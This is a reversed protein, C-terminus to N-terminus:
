AATRTARQRTEDSGLNKSLQDVTRALYRMAETLNQSLDNSVQRQIETNTSHLQQLNADLTKQLRLVSQTQEHIETLGSNKARKDEKTPTSEQEKIISSWTSQLEELKLLTTDVSKNQHETLRSLTHNIQKLIEGHSADLYQRATTNQKQLNQDLHEAHKQLGENFSSITSSSSEAHLKIAPTLVEKVAVCIQEAHNTQTDRWHSQAELITNQWLNVQQSLSEAVATQIGDLLNAVLKNPHSTNEEDPLNSSVIDGVRSDVMSLFHQESREIPFQIFIALVSLVLGVATTDFAVYLGSKLNEVAANGNTFDLGGLTQTIGIVTGLFGLMPIAWSIIRVLGYSDHADDADRNSLERLDDALLKSSGRQSQRHLVERLRRILLNDAISTPLENLNLSWKSAVRNANNEAHWSEAPTLTHFNPTLDEDRIAEYQRKQKSLWLHKRLLIAVAFWFLITATIAIPHGLFYRNLTSDSPSQSALTLFGFSLATGLGASKLFNTQRPATSLRQPLAKRGPSNSDAAESEKLFTKQDTAHSM